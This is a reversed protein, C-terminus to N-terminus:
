GSMWTLLNENVVRKRVNKRLVWLIFKGLCLSMFAVFKGFVSRLSRDVAPDRNAAAAAAAANAASVNAMKPVSNLTVGSVLLLCCGNMFFFLFFFFPPFPWILIGAACGNRVNQFVNKNILILM